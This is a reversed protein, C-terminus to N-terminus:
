AFDDDCGTVVTHGDDAVAVARVRDPHRLPAGLEKRTAVDWVRAARDAGGTIVLRTDPSFAAGVLIGRQQLMAEGAEEGSLDLISM